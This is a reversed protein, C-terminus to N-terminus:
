SPNLGPGLLGERHLWTKPRHLLAFGSFAAARAHLHEPRARRASEYSGRICAGEYTCRQMNSHLM